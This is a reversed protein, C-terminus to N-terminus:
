YYGRSNNSYIRDQVAQTATISYQVRCKIQYVKKFLNRHQCYIVDHLKPGYDIIDLHCNIIILM